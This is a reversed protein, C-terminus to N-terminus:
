VGGGTFHMLLRILQAVAMFPVFAFSHKRGAHKIILLWGAYLAALLLAIFFLELNGRGGLLMGTSVLVIADGKGIQEKSCCAIVYIVGGLLMGLLMSWISNKSILAMVLCIGLVILLQVTALSKKKVDQIAFWVLIGLAVVMNGIEWM